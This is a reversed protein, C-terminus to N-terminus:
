RGTERRQAAIARDIGFLPKENKVLAHMAVLQPFASASLTMMVPGGNSEAAQIYGALDKAAATFEATATAAMKGLMKDIVALFERGTMVITEGNDPAPAPASASLTTVPRPLWPAPTRVIGAMCLVPSPLQAYLPTAPRPTTTTHRAQVEAKHAAIALALGTLKSVPMM